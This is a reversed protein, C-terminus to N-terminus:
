GLLEAVKALLADRDVPKEFFAEPPRLGKRSSLFREFSGLGQPSAWPNTVGTVVVIPVDKLSEDERMDRFFRLGSTEPMSIDLSVLDPRDSRVRELAEKGNAATSVAYGADTFVTSLYAVVDAEDDVVLIKKKGM